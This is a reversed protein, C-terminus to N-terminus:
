TNEPSTEEALSWRDEVGALKWYAVAALWVVVFLGVIVFGVTNLDLESIWGTVPDSLDLQERLVGVLEVTGILAAVAVSLGTITLNYFIKRVPRAFAWEYAVNMFAGDATDLLTMGAAFLLPLVLVAFWPLGSSAGNGALALLLVETATDFGLGLLLGLPYMQVPRSVARMLPALFRSLVGRSNLEAELEQEDFRGRRAARWVRAIGVLAILNLAAILYLFLGSVSTGVVGLAEHTSSGDSSLTSVWRSGTSILLALVVVVTSHGLAFWFGVSVPRRGDAIFKRTTNDIAAIHDADFAHRLGLTYATVGLGLGFVQSGVAYHAPVVAVLLAGWALVHLAAIVLFLGGVRRGFGSRTREPMGTDATGM